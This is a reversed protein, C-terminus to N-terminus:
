LKKRIENIATCITKYTGLGGTACITNAYERYLSCRANGASITINKTIYFLYHECAVNDRIYGGLFQKAGLNDCTQGSEDFRSSFHVFMQPIVFNHFKM